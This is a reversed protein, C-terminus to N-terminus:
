DSIPKAGPMEYFSSVADLTRGDSLTVMKANAYVTGDRAAFGQLLVPQNPDFEKYFGHHAVAPLTLFILALSLSAAITRM